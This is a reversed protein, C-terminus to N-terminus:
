RRERRRTVLLWRVFRYCALLPGAANGGGQSQEALFVANPDLRGGEHRKQM